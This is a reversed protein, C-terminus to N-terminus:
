IHKRESMVENKLLFKRFREQDAEGVEESDYCADWMALFLDYFRDELLCDLTRASHIMVLLGFDGSCM